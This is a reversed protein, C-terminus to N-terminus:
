QCWERRKGGDYPEALESALMHDRVSIGKITVVDADVRGAYKDDAINTLVVEDTGFLTSLTLSAAAEEQLAALVEDSAELFRPFGECTGDARALRELLEDLKGQEIAEVIERRPVVAENSFAAESEVANWGPMWSEVMSEYAGGCADNVQSFALGATRCAKQLYYLTGCNCQDDYFSCAEKAEIADLIHVRVDDDKPFHDGWDAGTGDNQAAEVLLNLQEVTEIRGSIHICTPARDGM